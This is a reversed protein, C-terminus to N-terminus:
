GQSLYQFARILDLKIQKLCQLGEQLHLVLFCYM